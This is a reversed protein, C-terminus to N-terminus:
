KVTKAAVSAGNVFAQQIQNGAATVLEAQGSYGASVVNSNNVSSLGGISLRASGNTSVEVVLNTICTDKPNSLSFQQGAITGSIRTTPVASEFLACGSLGAVLVALVITKKM